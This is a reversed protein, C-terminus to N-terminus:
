KWIKTSYISTFICIKCKQSLVLSYVSRKKNFNYLKHNLIVVYISKTYVTVLIIDYKYPKKCNLM